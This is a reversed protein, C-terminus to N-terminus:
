KRNQLMSLYSTRLTDSIQYGLSNLINEIRGLAADKEEESRALIELELFGGLGHVNDLCATVYEKQLMTRDKIVEPDAPMYGIMQLINRCVAGDEVGTELEERTMTRADLKKGKFNIQARSKGTLHDKTERVRLAEGNARIDGQPNDFYTDREEIFATEQFGTKLLKGRILDLDVVPLKVEVEIM